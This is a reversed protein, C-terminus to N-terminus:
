RTLVLPLRSVRQALGRGTSRRSIATQTSSFTKRTGAAPEGDRRAPKARISSRVSTVERSSLASPNRRGGGQSGGGEDTAKQARRRQQLRPQQSGSRIRWRRQFTAATSTRRRPAGLAGHCQARRQDAREREAQHEGAPPEPKSVTRHGASATRANAARTACGRPSRPRTRM